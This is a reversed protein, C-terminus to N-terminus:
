TSRSDPNNGPSMRLRCTGHALGAFVVGLPRGRLVSDLQSVADRTDSIHSHRWRVVHIASDAVAAITIAAPSSCMPPTDLVVLDYRKRAAELFTKLREPGFAVAPPTGGTAMTLLDGGWGTRQCAASDLLTDPNTADSPEISPLGLKGAIHPSHNQGGDVLLVRAGSAACAQALGIALSSRGDGDAVSTVAVVSPTKDFLVLRANAYVQAMARSWASTDDLPTRLAQTLTRGSIPPVFGIVSAKTGIEIARPTTQQAAFAGRTLAGTGGIFGGVAIGTMLWKALRGRGEPHGTEAPSIVRADATAIGHQEIAEKYRTLFSEYLASTAEVERELQTAEILAGQNAAIEARTKDIENLIMEEKLGSIAVENELQKAMRAREAEMQRQVSALDLEIAALEKNKLAGQEVMRSRDRELGARTELLSSLLPSQADAEVDDTKSAARELRAQAEAVQARVTVLETNLAVLRQTAMTMEGDPGLGAERRHRQLSREAVELRERLGEVRPKLWEGAREAASDYIAIQQALYAEAFANAAEASYYPDISNYNIFITHTGTSNSVQLGALLDDIGGEVLDESDTLDVAAPDDQADALAAGVLETLMSVLKLAPNRDPHVALIAVDREALISAAKEATNRSAIIDLETKIMRNEPSLPTVVSEGPLVQQRRVDMVLVTQSSYRTPTTKYAFFAFAIGLIMPIAITFKWRWLFTLAEIAGAEATRESSVIM